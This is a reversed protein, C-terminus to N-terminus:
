NKHMTFCPSNKKRKRKISDRTQRMEGLLTRRLIQSFILKSILVVTAVSEGYKFQCFNIISLEKGSIITTFNIQNSLDSYTLQNFSLTLLTYHVVTRTQEVGLVAGRM